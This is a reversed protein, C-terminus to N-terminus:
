PSFYIIMRLSSLSYNVESSNLRSLLVSCISSLRTALVIIPYPLIESLTSTRPSMMSLWIPLIAAASSFYRWHLISIWFHNTNHLFSLVWHILSVSFIPCTSSSIIFLSYCHAVRNWKVLESLFGSSKSFTTFWNTFSTPKSILCDCIRPIRFVSYSLGNAELCICNNSLFCYELIIDFSSALSSALIAVLFPAYPAHNIGMPYYCLCM